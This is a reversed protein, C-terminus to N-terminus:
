LSGTIILIHVKKTQIYGPLLKMLRKTFKSTRNMKIKLLTMPQIGVVLMQPRLQIRTADESMSIIFQFNKWFDEDFPLLKFCTRQGYFTSAIQM